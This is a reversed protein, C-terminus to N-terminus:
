IANLDEYIFKTVNGREWFKGHITVDTKYKSLVCVAYDGYGTYLIYVDKKRTHAWIRLVIYFLCKHMMKIVWQSKVMNFKVQLFCQGGAM